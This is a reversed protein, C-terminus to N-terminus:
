KAARRSPRERRTRLLTLPYTADAHQHVSDCVIRFHLGAYHREVLPKQTPQL